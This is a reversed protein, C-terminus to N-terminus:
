QEHLWSQYVRKQQDTSSALQVIRYPADANVGLKIELTRLDDNRLVTIRVMEGPKATIAAEFAERKLHLGDLAVIKDRANLGQEYAPTGARVDKVNIFDGNDDLDAGLFGKLISRSGVTFDRPGEIPHGAQEIRLGADALVENYPLEDRGRVYRTFFDEFSTGAMLECARQFDGPTYNRNKEYFEHYLYRMVDDLSKANNSRRRIELDLLLGLLEGKNYYSIQSNVSNEDPRYEKIWANFSAEEASMQLRGPTNQFDQIKRALEVLYEGDSILGARRVMLDGYYSTIGEAVWLSRTYNEKTYDFPGLADPRIRKVNWLHFFEHAVLDYFSAWGQEKAFRDRSFGLSTSNLHELGGGGSARLHLIFTYDHYPIVGMMGTEAAVIKQVDRKMREPDYNAQGDVIIRHPVGRVEFKIEKFNSVEFPSDYLIDFNEARFTNPQGEVPPLGTAIKWSNAPIVRLTAPKGIAGDPYMLLAANNWFAHDSNIENTRVSFENCYVRYFARWQRAGNTQVRWTNKNIKTWDLAHGGADASFDQVNREFERILYSGPTWVPMILDTENPVNLNAPIRIRMEVELLHKWPQPMSVTFSIDSANPSQAQTSSAAFAILVILFLILSVHNRRM